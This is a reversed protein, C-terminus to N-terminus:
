LASTNYGGRRTIAKWDVAILTQATSGAPQRYIRIQDTKSNKTLGGALAIARTLTMPGKSPVAQPHIVYGTVYIPESDLVVILDGGRVFPNSKEEGRAVAALSYVLFGRGDGGSLGFLDGGGRYRFIQLSKEATDPLVGACTLLDNLRVNERFKFRAPLRVDGTIVVRQLPDVLRSKSSDKPNQQGLAVVLLTTFLLSILILRMLVRKREM